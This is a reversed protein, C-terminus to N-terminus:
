AQSTRRVVVGGVKTLNLMWVQNAIQRRLQLSPLQLQPIRFRCSRELRLPSLLVTRRARRFYWLNTDHTPIAVLVKEVPLNTSFNTKVFKSCNLSTEMLYYFKTPKHDRVTLVCSSCTRRSRQKVKNQEVSFSDIDQLNNSSFSVSSFAAYSFDGSGAATTM